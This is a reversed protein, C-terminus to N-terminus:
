MKDVKKMLAKTKKYVSDYSSSSGDFIASSVGAISAGERFYDVINDESVGGTVMFDIFPLPQRLARIYSPGGFASVPFIKVVDVGLKWANVIESSTSAGAVVVLNNRQCFHIIDVDTHPSVIFRAGADKAMKASSEYLVTGAGVYIEELLSLREIVKVSDTGSILVEISKIGGDICAMALDVSKQYDEVRLVAVLKNKKLTDLTSCM